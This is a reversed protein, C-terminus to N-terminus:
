CVLHSPSKPCTLEPSLANGITGTAGSAHGTADSLSGARYVYSKEPAMEETYLVQEHEPYRIILVYWDAGPLVIEAYGSGDTTSRGGGVLVM